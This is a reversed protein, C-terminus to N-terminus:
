KKSAARQEESSVGKDRSLLGILWVPVVVGANALAQIIANMDLSTSPNGDLLPIAASVVFTGLLTLWGVLSTRWSGKLEMSEIKKILKNFVIKLIIKEPWSIPSKEKEKKKIMDFTNVHDEISQLTDLVYQKRNSLHKMLEITKLTEKRM